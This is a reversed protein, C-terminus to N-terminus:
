KQWGFYKGKKVDEVTLGVLYMYLRYIGAIVILSIILVILPYM